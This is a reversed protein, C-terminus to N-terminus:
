KLPDYDLQAQYTNVQALLGPPLLDALVKAVPVAEAVDIEVEDGFDVRRAAVGAVQGELECFAAIEAMLGASGSGAVLDEYRVRLCSGPHALEFSILPGACAVWYATLAAANNGPYVPAFQQAKSIECWRRRGQNTLIAIIVSDAV